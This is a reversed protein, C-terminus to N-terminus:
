LLLSINVETAARPVRDVLGRKTLIQENEYGRQAFRNYNHFLARKAFNKYVADGM